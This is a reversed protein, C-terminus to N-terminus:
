GTHNRVFDVTRAIATALHQAPTFGSSKRPALSHDGDAFWEVTIATSLTYGAVEDRTGFEDREGQLILTPTRLSALHATRLQQPKDPPHFPYGFVVVGRATSDDAIMTAVRGGMSKGALVFPGPAHARVVSRLTDQLVPMPDPVKRKAARYAFDFRVVAYGAAAIGAAVAALFPHTMGAGAGHALVVTAPATQPGDRLVPVM